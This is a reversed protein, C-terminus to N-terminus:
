KRIYIGGESLKFEPTNRIYHEISRSRNGVYSGDGQKIVRKIESLLAEHYKAILRDDKTIRYKPSPHELMEPKFDSELGSLFLFKGTPHTDPISALFELIETGGLYAREFDPERISKGEFAAPTDLDVGLYRRAGIAKAFDAMSKYTTNMFEPFTAASCGLDVFDKGRIIKEWHNFTQPDKSVWELIGSALQDGITYFIPEKTDDFDKRKHRARAILPKYEQPVKRNFEQKLQTIM